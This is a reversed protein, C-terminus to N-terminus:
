SPRNTLLDYKAKSVQNGQYYWETVSKEGYYTTCPGHQMDNQWSVEKVVVSGDRYHREVGTRMGNDFPVEAAKEGNNYLITQGHQRGNSWQESAVPDGGPNFTRREGNVQGNNLALTEQPAGNPYFTKRSTVVGGTIVESAVLQGFEDRINRTGESNAVSSDRQHNPTFYEGETLFEGNYNEVLKPTADEYWVTIKRQTTGPAIVVERTPTGAYTYTVERILQGNQYSERKRIQSSHPFTYTVDGNLIGHAYASEVIVGDTRTTVVTGQQGRQTWENPDVEVGYKHIYTQDVVECCRQQNQCAASVILLALLSFNRRKM